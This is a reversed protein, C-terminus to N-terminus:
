LPDDINDSESGLESLFRIDDILENFGRVVDSLYEDLYVDNFVLVNSEKDKIIELDGMMEELGEIMDTIADKSKPSLEYEDELYEDDLDDERESLYEKIIADIKNEPLEFDDSFEERIINKIDTKNIRIKKM